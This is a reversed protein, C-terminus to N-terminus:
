FTAKRCAAEMIEVFDMRGQRRAYELASCGGNLYKVEPDAGQALLFGCKELKNSRVTYELPTSWRRSVFNIDSGHQILAEMTATGNAQGRDMSIAYFMAEPDMEAGYEFLIELATSTSLQAAKAVPTACQASSGLLRESM